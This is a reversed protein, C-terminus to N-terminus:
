HKGVMNEKRDTETPVGSQKPDFKSSYKVRGKEITWPARDLATGGPRYQIPEQVSAADETRGEAEAIERPSMFRYSLPQKWGLTIIVWCVAIFAIAHIVKGLFSEEM